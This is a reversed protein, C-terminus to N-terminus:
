IRRWRQLKETKIGKYLHFQLSRPRKLNAKEESLTITQLTGFQQM